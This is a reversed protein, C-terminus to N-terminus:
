KSMKKLTTIPQRLEFLVHWVFDKKIFTKIDILTNTCCPGNYFQYMVDASSALVSSARILGYSSINLLVSLNIKM